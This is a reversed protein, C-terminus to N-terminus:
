TLGMNRCDIITELLRRRFNDNVTITQRGVVYTNRNTYKLDPLRARALVWVRVARVDAPRATTVTATGAIAVVGAPAPNALLVNLDTADIFGDQNRDLDVWIGAANPVAWITTEGPNQVSNGNLDHFDLVGDGNADYAYAFDVAQINDAIPQYGNAGALFVGGVMSGDNNRGLAAAGADAIGDVPATDIGAGFGFAVVENLDGAVLRNGNLDMAFAIGDSNAMLIGAPTPLARAALTPDFGAMRIERSMIDMASRLNQQMEAVQDQAIYSDHQSRFSAYIAATVVSGLLMVILLEVLTFGSTNKWRM